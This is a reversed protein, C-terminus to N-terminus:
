LNAVWDPDQEYMADGIDQQHCGRALLEKVLDRASLPEPTAWAEKVHPPDVSARYLGSPLREIRLGM